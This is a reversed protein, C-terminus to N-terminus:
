KPRWTPPRGYQQGYLDRLYNMAKQPTREEAPVEYYIPLWEPDGPKLDEPPM